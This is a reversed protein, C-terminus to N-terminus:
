ELPTINGESSCMVLKGDILDVLPEKFEASLSPPLFARFGKEAALWTDIMAKDEANWGYPTVSVAHQPAIVCRRSKGAGLILFSYLRHGNHKKLLAECALIKVPVLLKENLTGSM